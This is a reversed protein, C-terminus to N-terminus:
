VPPWPEGPGAPGIVVDHAPADYRAVVADGRLVVTDPRVEGAVFRGNPGIQVRTPVGAGAGLVGFRAGRLAWATGGRFAGTVVLEGLTTVTSHLAAGVKVDGSAEVHTQELHGAFLRGPRSLVRRMCDMAAHLVADTLPPEAPASGRWGAAATGRPWRQLRDNLAQVEPDLRLDARSLQRHVHFALAAPSADGPAALWAALQECLLLAHAYAVGPGGAALWAAVAGTDLRLTGRAEVRARVVRGRIEVGGTAAVCREAEVHGGIWVNGDFEVDREDVHGPIRLEPAVAAFIQGDQVDVSPHGGVAAIITRRDASLVTGPGPSLHPNWTGKVAVTEGIVTLGEEEVDGPDLHVLTFGIGVETGDSRGHGDGTEEDPPALLDGHVVTWVHATRGLRAPRGEAVRVRRGPCLLAREIAAAEVGARVGARGLSELVDDAALGPALREQSPVTRLELRLAPETDPLAYTVRLGHRVTVWASMGDPAVEVDVSGTTDATRGRIAVADEAQLVVEGTRQEGNVLLDVPAGEAL